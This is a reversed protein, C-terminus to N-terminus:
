DAAADGTSDTESAAWADSVADWADAFGSKLEGWASRTGAELAGYREGLRNRAARLDALRERAADRAADSMDAWGERLAQERRAIAADLRDLGERARELAADREEASYDAVAEMAEAIEARVEAAPPAQGGTEQAPAPAGSLLLAGLAVGLAAGLAPGAARRSM